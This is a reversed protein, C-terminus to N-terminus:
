PFLSNSCYLIPKGALNRRGPPELSPAIPRRNESVQILHHVTAAAANPMARFRLGTAVWLGPVADGSSVARQAYQPRIAPVCALCISAAILAASPLSSICPQPAILCRLGRSWRGRQRRVGFSV